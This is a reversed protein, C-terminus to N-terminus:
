KSFCLIHILNFLLSHIIKGFFVLSATISHLSTWRIHNSTLFLILNGALSYFALREFAVSLLILWVALRKQFQTRNDTKSPVRSTHFMLPALEDLNENVM